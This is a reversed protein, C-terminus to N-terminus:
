QLAGWVGVVAGTEVDSTLDASLAGAIGEANDGVFLGETEGNVAYTADPGGGTTKLEGTLDARMGAGQVDSVFVGNEINVAGSIGITPDAAQFNTMSGSIESAAFDAQLNLESLIDPTENTNANAEAQAMNDGVWMGSTGSYSATGATPLEETQTFNEFEQTEANYEGTQELRSILTESRANLEDYSAVDTGGGCASLTGAILPTILALKVKSFKM